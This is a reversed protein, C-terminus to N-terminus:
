KGEIAGRLITRFAMTTAKAIEHGETASLELRSDALTLVYCYVQDALEEVVEDSMHRM